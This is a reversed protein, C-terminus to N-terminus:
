ANAYYAKRQAPERRVKWVRTGNQEQRTLGLYYKHADRGIVKSLYFAQAPTECLVSDGEKMTYKVFDVVTLQDRGNGCEPVPVHKDIKANKIWNKRGNM